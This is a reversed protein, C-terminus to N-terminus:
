DCKNHQGLIAFHTRDLIGADNFQEADKRLRVLMLIEYTPGGHELPGQTSQKRPDLLSTM